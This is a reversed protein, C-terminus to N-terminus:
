VDALVDYSCGRYAIKDETNQSSGVIKIHNNISKMWPMLAALNVRADEVSPFTAELEPNSIGAMSIWDAIM